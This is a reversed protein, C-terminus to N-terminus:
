LSSLVQERSGQPTQQQTSNDPNRTLDPLKDPIRWKNEYGERLGNLIYRFLIDYSGDENRNERNIKDGDIAM